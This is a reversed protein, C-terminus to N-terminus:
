EVSDISSHASTFALQGGAIVRVTPNGFTNEGNLLPVQSTAVVTVVSSMDHAGANLGGLIVLSSM